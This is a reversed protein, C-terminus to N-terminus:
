SEGLRPDSEGRDILLKIALVLLPKGDIILDVQIISELLRVEVPDENEAGGGREVM